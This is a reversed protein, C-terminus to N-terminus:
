FNPPGLHIRERLGEIPDVADNGESWWTVGADAYEALIDADKVPDQRDLWGAHVVDFPSSSTRHERIYALLSRYDEPVLRKDDARLPFVGDWQAARRFPKKNPWMGAVWIPIRPQQIPTPLFQAEKIHYHTGTYSFPEGSWLGTLVQLGEDLMEGHIKGDPLEGFRSYDGFWDGGLGVGLIIRGDSLHDLTVTERALKWPRRRALPTVMPGLKIRKTASSMAALLIYPDSLPQNHPATWLMHDWIFFGDWGSDEAEHALQALLKPDSFQGFNPTNIAFRM